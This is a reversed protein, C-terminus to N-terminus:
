RLVAVIRINGMPLGRCGTDLFAVRNCDASATGRSACGFLARFIVFPESLPGHSYHFDRLPCVALPLDSPCPRIWGCSTQVHVPGASRRKRTPSTLLFIVRKLPLILAELLQCIPQHVPVSLTRNRTCMVHTVSVQSRTLSDSMDGPKGHNQNHQM